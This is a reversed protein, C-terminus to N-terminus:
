NSGLGYKNSETKANLEFKGSGDTAYTFFFNNVPNTDVKNLPDIPLVSVSLGQAKRFDIPIWGTGDAKTFTSSASCHYKFSSSPLNLGACDTGATTTAAPDILSTYVTSTAGLGAINTDYTQYISIINNLSALSVVRNTDRAQKYLEVPNITVLVVTSLIAVVGIVVLLEILTFGTLSYHNATDKGMCRLRDRYYLKELPTFGEHRNKHKRQMKNEENYWVSVAFM